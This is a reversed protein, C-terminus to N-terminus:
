HALRTNLTPEAIGVDSVDMTKNPTTTSINPFYAALRSNNKITPGVISSRAGNKRRLQPNLAPHNQANGARSVVTKLKQATYPSSKSQKVHISQTHGKFPQQM